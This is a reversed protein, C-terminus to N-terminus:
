RAAYGIAFLIAAVIIGGIVLTVSTPNQEYIESLRSLSVNGLALGIVGLIAIVIVSATVGGLLTPQFSNNTASPNDVLKWQVIIKNNPYCIGFYTLECGNAECAEVLRNYTDEEWGTTTINADFVAQYTARPVMCITTSPDYTKFTQYGSVRTGIEFM